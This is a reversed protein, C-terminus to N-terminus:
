TDTPHPPQTATELYTRRSTSTSFRTELAFHHAVLRSSSHYFTDQTTPYMCSVLYPGSSSSHTSKDLNQQHHITDVTHPHTSQIKISPRHCFSLTRPSVRSPRSQLHLSTIPSQLLTPSNAHHKTQRSTHLIFDLPLGPLSFSLKSTPDTFLHTM